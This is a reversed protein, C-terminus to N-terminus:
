ARLGRKHMPIIFFIILALIFFTAYQLTGGWLLLALIIGITVAKGKGGRFQFYLPFVHGLIAAVGTLYVVLEQFQFKMAFYVPILGKAIDGLLVLVGPWTGFTQFANITGPNKTGVKWLDKGKWKAVLAAFLISGLLYAGIIAGIERLM